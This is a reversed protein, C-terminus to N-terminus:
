LSPIASRFMFRKEMAPPLRLSLLRQERDERFGIRNSILSFTLTVLPLCNSSFEQLFDICEKNDSDSDESNELVNWISRDSRGLVSVDSTVLYGVECFFQAMHPKNRYLAMHLPSLRRLYSHLDTLQVLDWTYLVYEPAPSPVAGHQLLLRIHQLHGRSIAWFLPYSIVHGNLDPDPENPNAGNKLLLQLINVSQCRTALILATLNNTTSINPNAGAELLFGVVEELGDNVAMMLPTFGNQFKRDVDAGAHILYKMVDMNSLLWVQDHYSEDSLALLEGDDNVLPDRDTDKSRNWLTEALISWYFPNEERGRRRSCWGEYNLLMVAIEFHGSRAAASLASSRYIINSNNNSILFYSVEAGSQLLREVQEINGCESADILCKDLSNVGPSKSSKQTDPVYRLDEQEVEVPM